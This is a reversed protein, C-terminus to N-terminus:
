KRKGRIEADMGHSINRLVLLWAGIVIIISLILVIMVSMGTLFDSSAGLFLIVVMLLLIVSIYAGVALYIEFYKNIWYSRRNEKIRNIKAFFIPMNVLYPYENILTYRFYCVILLILPAISMLTGVLLYMSSAGYADPTGNLSFHTPVVSPLSYVAFLTIIWIAIVEAVMLSFLMKGTPGFPAKRIRLDM